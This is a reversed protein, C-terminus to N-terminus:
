VLPLQFVRKHRASFDPMKHTTRKSIIQSSLILIFIIALFLIIAIWERLLLRNPKEKM